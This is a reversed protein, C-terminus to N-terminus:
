KKKEDDKKEGEVKIFEGSIKFYLELIDKKKAINVAYVKELAPYVEEIEIEKIKYKPYNTTIYTKITQPTYQVPIEWSTEKWEGKESYAAETKIEKNVFEAEYIDNVKTWKVDSAEPFRAKFNSQVALPLDKPEVKQASLYSIGILLFALFANIKKM